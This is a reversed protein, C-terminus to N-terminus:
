VARVAVRREAGPGHEGRGGRVSRPDVTVVLFGSSQGNSDSGVEVEASTHPFIVTHLAPWWSIPLHLM